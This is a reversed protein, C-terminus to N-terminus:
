KRKKRNKKRSAKAAKRAKKKKASLKRQQAASKETEDFDDDEDDYYADEDEDLDFKERLEPNQAAIKANYVKMFRKMDKEDTMDFGADQGMMFFSKAMGFKSSDNMIKRYGPEIKKLYSLILGATPLKFERQLFTWFAILEPITDDAEDPSSTSIKRPFVDEITEKVASVTMNPITVGVYNYGYYILQAAWFGMEPDIELREKGEPSEFFLDILDEQYKEVQSEARRSDPDIKDLKNINFAM